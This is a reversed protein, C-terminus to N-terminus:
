DTPETTLSNLRWLAPRLGAPLNYRDFLHQLAIAITMSNVGIM